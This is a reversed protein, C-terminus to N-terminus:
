EPELAMVTKVIHILLSLDGLSEDRIHASLSSLYPRILRSCEGVGASPCEPGRLRVGLPALMGFGPSEPWTHAELITRWGARRCALIGPGRLRPNQLGQQSKGLSIRDGQRESSTRQQCLPRNEVRSPKLLGGRSRRCLKGKKLELARFFFLTRVFLLYYKAGSSTLQKM